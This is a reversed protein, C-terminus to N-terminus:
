LTRLCTICYLGGDVLRSAGVQGYRRAKYEHKTDKQLAEALKDADVPQENGFDLTDFQLDFFEAIDIWGLTFRGTVLALVKDGRSLTNTLSAEWAAHGNGIYIVADGETRAVKCLDPYLSNALDVLSGAYINPSPQHMANLVAEPLVSPGPISLQKIGNALSV